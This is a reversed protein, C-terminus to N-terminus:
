LRDLSTERDLEKPRHQVLIRKAEQKAVRVADM